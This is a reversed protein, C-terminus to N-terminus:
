VSVVADADSGNLLMTFVDRQNALSAQQTMQKNERDRTHEWWRRKLTEDNPELMLKRTM